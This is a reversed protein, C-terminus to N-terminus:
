AGVPCSFGYTDRLYDTIDIVVRLEEPSQDVAGQFFATMDPDTLMLMAPGHGIQAIDEAIVYIPTGCAAFVFAHPVAGAVLPSLLLAAALIYKM